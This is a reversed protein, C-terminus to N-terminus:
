ARIHTLADVRTDSALFGLGWALLEAKRVTQGRVGRFVREVADSDVGESAKREALIAVLVDQDDSTKEGSIDNLSGDRLLGVGDDGGNEEGLDEAFVTKGADDKVVITLRKGTKKYAREGM